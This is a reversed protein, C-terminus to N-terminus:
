PQVTEYFTRRPEIIMWTSASIVFALAYLAFLANWGLSDFITAGVYPQVAHGLNGVMNILGLAVGAYRGGIDVIAAWNAAQGLDFSTSAICLLITAEGQTRAYPIAFMAAAAGLCGCIPFIARGAYRWGTRRVLADSLVGGVLCAVGGCLLPWASSWESKEFTVGHVKEMYKPMWSMFFSWGFSGCFYYVALAWVSASGVLRRWLERGMHHLTEEGRGARIHALEAQNVSKKESPENRFWPYFVCCWLVGLLGSISFAIRWSEISGFWSLASAPSTSTQTHEIGRTMAGFILPAFAAGMRAFFWIAGGARARELAPLWRSQIQAMNPYAGAEGAGFLFRILILSYFGTAMGTAATLVSWAIVIRTLTFRSGFRSGMWGGPIEFLSYGLWFAGFVLGM